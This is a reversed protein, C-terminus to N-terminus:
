QTAAWVQEALALTRRASAVDSECVAGTTVVAKFHELEAGFGMVAGTMNAPLPVTYTPRDVEVPGRPRRCVVTDVNTVTASHEEGVVELLENDQFFSGTTGLQATGVAGSAFSLLLSLAHRNDDLSLARAELSAVEGGYWRMLDLAHVTNDIVYGRLSGFGPGMLFKSHVSTVRGFEPRAVFEAAVRYARAFRKMYGVMVPVGTETSRQEIRALEEVTAAGPKECFVPLGADLLPLVVDLYAAPPVSVLVADIPAGDLLSPVKDYAAAAGFAAATAQARDLRTACTAVLELGAPRLAPYLSTTAHRGCGIFGVRM